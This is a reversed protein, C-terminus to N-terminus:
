KLSNMFRMMSKVTKTLNEVVGEQRPAGGAGDAGAAGRAGAQPLGGRRARTFCPGPRIATASARM